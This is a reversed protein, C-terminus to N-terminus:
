GLASRRNGIGHLFEELGSRRVGHTPPGFSQWYTAQDLGTMNLFRSLEHQQEDRITAGLRESLATDESLPLLLDQLSVGHVGGLLCATFYALQTENPKHRWADPATMLELSGTRVRVPVVTATGSGERGPALFTIAFRGGGLRVPHPIYHPSTYGILKFLRERYAATAFGATELVWWLYAAVDQQRATAEQRLRQMAGSSYGERDCLRALDNPRVWLGIGEPVGTTPADAALSQAELPQDVRVPELVM